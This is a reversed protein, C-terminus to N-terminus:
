IVSSSLVARTILWLARCHSDRRSGPGRSWGDARAGPLYPQLVSPSSTGRSRGRHAPVLNLHGRGVGYCSHQPSMVAACDALPNVWGCLEAWARGLAISFEGSLLEIREKPLFSFLRQTNVMIAIPSSRQKLDFRHSM